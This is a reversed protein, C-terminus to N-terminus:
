DDIELGRARETGGLQAVVRPTIYRYSGQAARAAAARGPHATQLGRSIVSFQYSIVVSRHGFGFIGM